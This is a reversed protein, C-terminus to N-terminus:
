RPAEGASELIARRLAPAIRFGVSVLRDLIPAVAPLLALRKAALLVGATGVVALGLSDAARRAPGDDLLVVCEHRGTGLSLVASEGRDLEFPAVNPASPAAQVRIWPLGDPDPVDFGRRRGEHLEARVEAPIVIEGYLRPLLHLVGARHLYLLPSTNCIHEAMAALM